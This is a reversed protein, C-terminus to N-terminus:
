ANLFSQIKKWKEFLRSSPVLFVVDFSTVVVVFDLRVIACQFCVELFLSEFYKVEVIVPKLVVSHSIPRIDPRESEEIDSCTLVFERQASESCMQLPCCKQPLQIM